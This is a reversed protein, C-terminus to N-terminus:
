SSGRSGTPFVNYDKAIRDLCQLYIICAGLINKSVESKVRGWKGIDEKVIELYSDITQLMDVDDEKLLISESDLRGKIFNYYDRTKTLIAAVDDDIM